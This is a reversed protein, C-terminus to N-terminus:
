RTATAALLCRQAFLMRSASVRSFHRSRKPFRKWAPYPQPNEKCLWVYFGTGYGADPYLKGYHKMCAILRNTIWEDSANPQADLLAHAVAATMVTDDTFESRRCFLPFDKTKGGRDFEYPSGVMDGLIAGIM